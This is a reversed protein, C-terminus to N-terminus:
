DHGEDMQKSFLIIILLPLSLTLAILVEFVDDCYLSKARLIITVLANFMIYITLIIVLYSM